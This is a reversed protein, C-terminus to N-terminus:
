GSVVHNGDRQGLSVARMSAAAAIGMLIRDVQKGTFARGHSRHGPAHYQQRIGLPLLPIRHRRCCVAPAVRDDHEVRRVVTEIAVAVEARHGHLSASQDCWALRDAEHSMGPAVCGLGAM